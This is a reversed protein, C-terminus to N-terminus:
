TTAGRPDLLGPTDPQVEDIDTSNASSTSEGYQWIKTARAPACSPTDPAFAPADAPGTTRRPASIAPEPEDDALPIHRTAPDIHNMKCYARPFDYSQRYTNGYFGARYRSGSLARYWADLYAASLEGKCTGIQEIDKFLTARGPVHARDAAAVAEKADARAQAASRDNGCVDAGGDCVSCDRDRVLLYLYIGHARAFALEGARLGYHGSVYRGWVLPTPAGTYYGRVNELSAATIAVTSDVGWWQGGPTRQSKAGILGRASRTHM